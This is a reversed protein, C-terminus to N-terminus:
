RSVVIKITKISEESEVQLFYLGNDVASFDLRSRNFRFAKIVRGNIDFLQLRDFQLQQHDLRAFDRVPNPFLGIDTQSPSIKNISTTLGCQLTSDLNANYNLSSDQWNRSLIADSAVVWGVGRTNIGVGEIMTYKFEVYGTDTVIIEKYGIEIVKKSNVFFISDVAFKPSIPGGLNLPFSDNLTLSMDMIRYISTDFSSNSRFWVEGSSTDERVYGRTRPVTDWTNKGMLRKFVHGNFTSDQGYVIWSSDITCHLGQLTVLWRNMTWSTQQQGFISQYQANLELLSFFWIFILIALARM